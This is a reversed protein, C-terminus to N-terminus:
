IITLHKQRITLDILSISRCIGSISRNIPLQSDLWSNWEKEEDVMGPIKNGSIFDLAAILKANWTRHDSPTSTPNLVRRPNGTGQEPAMDSAIPVSADSTNRWWPAVSIGYSSSAWPYAFSYSLQNDSQFNNYFRGSHDQLQAPGTVYPDSKCIFLKPSLGQLTLIWLNATVSGAQPYPDRYYSNVAAEATAAVNPPIATPTPSNLAASYPAYTHNTKPNSEFETM